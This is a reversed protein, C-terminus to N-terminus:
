QAASLRRELGARVEPWEDDIISFWTTDRLSGDRLVMHKRFLGEYKAGLKLIAARSRANRADCKLEVRHYGLVEFAHRLLLLKAEPNVPGGQMAPAYWTTGIELRRHAPEIAMYRTSGIARGSTKHRVAFVLEAGKTQSALSTAFWHDFGAGSGDLAMYTWIAPLNGAERLDAAHEAMLPELRVFRGDLTVPELPM